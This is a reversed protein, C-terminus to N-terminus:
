RLEVGGQRDTGVKKTGFGPPKKALFPFFFAPHIVTLLLVALLIMAGDLILFSTENQMLSSGWGSAM